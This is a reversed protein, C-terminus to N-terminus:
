EIVNKKVDYVVAGVTTTNGKADQALYDFSLKSFNFSINEAPILSGGSGGTSFSSVLLDTFKVKIFPKAPKKGGGARRGELTAEPIHQGTLCAQLLKPSAKNERMTFSFDNVSARGAGGGGAFAMSGSQSAGWSWSLLDIADKLVASEGPIDKVTLLYDVDSM